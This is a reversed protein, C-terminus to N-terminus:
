RRLSYVQKKSRYKAKARTIIGFDVLRDLIMNTAMYYKVIIRQAGSIGIDNHDALFNAIM